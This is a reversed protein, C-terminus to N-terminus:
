FIVFYFINLAPRTSKSLSVTQTNTTNNIDMTDERTDERIDEMNDQRNRRTAVTVMTLHFHRSSAM